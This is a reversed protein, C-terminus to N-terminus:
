FPIEESGTIDEAGLKIAAVEDASLAGLKSPLVDSVLNYTRTEGDKEVVKNDILVRCTKGVFDDTDFGEDINFEKDLKALMPALSAKPHRSLHSPTYKSVTIGEAGDERIKFTWKLRTAYREDQEAPKYFDNAVVECGTIVAEYADPDLVKYEVAKPAEIRAM